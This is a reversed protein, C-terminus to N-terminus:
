LRHVPLAEIPRNSQSSVIQPRSTIRRIQSSNVLHLASLHACLLPMNRLALTIGALCILRYIGRMADVAEFVLMLPEKPGSILDIHERDFIDDKVAVSEGATSLRRLIAIKDLHISPTPKNIIPFRVFFLIKSVNAM